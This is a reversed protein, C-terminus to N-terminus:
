WGKTINKGIKISGCQESKTNPRKSFQKLINILTDTEDVITKYGERETDLSEIHMKINVFNEINNVIEHIELLNKMLKNM